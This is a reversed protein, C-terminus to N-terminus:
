PAAAIDGVWGVQRSVSVGDPKGHKPPSVKEDDGNM